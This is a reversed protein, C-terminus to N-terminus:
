RLLGPQPLLLASWWRERRMCAECQCAHLLLVNESAYAITVSQTPGPAAYSLLDAAVSAVSTKEGDDAERELLLAYAQLQDARVGPKQM